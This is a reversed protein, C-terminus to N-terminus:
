KPYGRQNTYCMLWLVWRSGSMRLLYTEILLFLFKNQPTGLPETRQGSSNVKYVLGSLESVWLWLNSWWEYASSVWTYMDKDVASV